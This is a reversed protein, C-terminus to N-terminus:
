AHGIVASHDRYDQAPRASARLRALKAVVLRHHLGPSM